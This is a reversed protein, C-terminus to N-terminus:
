PACIGSFGATVPRGQVQVTRHAPDFLCGGKAPTLTYSGAALRRFTFRGEGDTVTADLCDAGRLTVTVGGMPQKEEPTSVLGKVRGRGTRLCSATVLVDLVSTNDAPTREAEAADVRVTSRLAGGQTPTAVLMVVASDGNPLMGLECTVEQGDAECTGQSTVTFDFRLGPALTDQLVTETATDPGGNAVTLAIILPEEVRPASPYSAQSVRLDVGVVPITPTVAVGWPRQGVAVQQLARHTVLDVVTVTNGLSNAVYLLPAEPHVALGAPQDGVPISAVVRQQATDIVSVTDGQWNGVYVFAGSPHVALKTPQSGVAITTVLAEEALDVVYVVNTFSDAVYLASGDPLVALPGATPLTGELWTAVVAQTALDIVQVRGAPLSGDRVTAVYARSRTPDLAVGVPTGTVPVGKVYRRAGLDVIGLTKATQETVYLFAGAADIALDSPAGGALGISGQVTGSLTEIISITRADSGTVAYVWAGGPDAVLWAVFTGLAITDVVRQTSADLVSLSQDDANSVYVYNVAEALRAQGLLLGTLVITCMLLLMSQHRAPRM